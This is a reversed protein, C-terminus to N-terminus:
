KRGLRLMNLLETASSTIGNGGAGLTADKYNNMSRTTTFIFIPVHEDVARVDKILDIGATRNFRGNEPRGMDSVIRDFRGPDYINIAETTSLATVVDIDQERLSEVLFANNRPEDDVWLIRQVPSPREVLLKELGAEEVPPVLESKLLPEIQAQLEVIQKQLDAILGRQQESVEDM